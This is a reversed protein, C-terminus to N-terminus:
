TSRPKLQEQCDERQQSGSSCGTTARVRPKKKPMVPTKVMVACQQGETYHDKNRMKSEGGVQLLDSKTYLSNAM